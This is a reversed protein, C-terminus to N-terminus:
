PAKGPKPGKGLSIFWRKGESAGGRGRVSGEGQSLSGSTLRGVLHARERTPLTPMIWAWKRHRDGLTGPSTLPLDGAFATVLSSPRAAARWKAKACHGPGAGVHGRDKAPVPVENTGATDTCRQVPGNVTVLKM